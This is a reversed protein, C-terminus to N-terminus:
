DQRGLRGRLMKRARFLRAEVASLSIGLIRAIEAYTVGEIHKLVFVERYHQPLQDILELLKDYGETREITALPTRDVAHEDTLDPEEESYESFSIPSGRRLSSQKRIWDLSSSRVAGVLYSRFTEPNRLKRLRRHVKVFAEQVMDAAIHFDGVVSYAISGAIRVYKEMLKKFADDDGALTERVLRADQESSSEGM